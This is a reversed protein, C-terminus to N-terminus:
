NEEKFLNGVRDKEQTNLFKEYNKLVEDKNREGIKRNGVYISWPELNRSIVSGAAVSVGEGIDVDPLVVSNAGVIAFQNIVIKGKKINRFDEQMTPNGFGWEKYDETGTIIRVGSSLGSFDAM